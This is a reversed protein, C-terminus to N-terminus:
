AQSTHRQGHVTRQFRRNVRTLHLPPPFGSRGCRRRLPRRGPFDGARGNRCDRGGRRGVSWLIRSRAPPAAVPRELLADAIAESVRGQEVARERVNGRELARAAADAAVLTELKKAVVHEAEDNGVHQKAGKRAGVLALQRAAQGIQHALFGAGLDRARDVEARRDPEAGRFGIGARARPRRDEGVDALRQDARDIEVAAKGRGLRQDSAQPLHAHLRLGLRRAIRFRDQLFPRLAAAQRRRGIALDRAGARVVVRLKADGHLKGMERGRFAGAARLAGGLLGGRRGHHLAFADLGM